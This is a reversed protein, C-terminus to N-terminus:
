LDVGDFAATLNLDEVTFEIQNLGSFFITLFKSM